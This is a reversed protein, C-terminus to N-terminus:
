ELLCKRLLNVQNKFESKDPDPEEIKFDDYAGEDFDIKGELHYPFFDSFITENLDNEEKERFKLYNGSKFLSYFICGYPNVM